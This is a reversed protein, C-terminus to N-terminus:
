ESRIWGKKLWCNFCEGNYQYLKKEEATCKPASM